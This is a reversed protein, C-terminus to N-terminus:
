GFPEGDEKLGHFRVPAALQGLIRRFLFEVCIKNVLVITLLTLEVFNVKFRRTCRDIRQRQRPYTEITPIIQLTCLDQLPIEHRHPRLPIVRTDTKVAEKQPIVRKKQM